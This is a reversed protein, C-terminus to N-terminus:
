IYEVDVNLMCQARESADLWWEQDFRELCALAASPSLSTKVLAFLEHYEAEPDSVVELVVEPSPGFYEAIKDYVELLLPVLFRHAKLFGIVEDRQRFLYWQELLAFQLEFTCFLSLGLEQWERTVQRNAPLTISSGSAPRLFPFSAPWMIPEVVVGTALSKAREFWETKPAFLFPIPQEAEKKATRQLTAVHTM